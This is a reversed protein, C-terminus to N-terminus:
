EARALVAAQTAFVRCVEQFWANGVDRQGDGTGIGAATGANLGIKAGERRKADMADARDGCYRRLVRTLYSRDM